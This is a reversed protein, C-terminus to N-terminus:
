RLVACNNGLAAWAWDARNRGEAYEDGKAVMLLTLPLLPLLVKLPGAGAGQATPPSFLYVSLAVALFAYPIVAASPSPCSSAVRVGEVGVPVGIEKSGGGIVGDGAHGVGAMGTLSMSSGGKIMSEAFSRLDSGADSPAVSSARHSRSSRSPERLRAKGNGTVPGSASSLVSGNPRAAAQDRTSDEYLRMEIQVTQRAARFLILFPYLCGLTTFAIAVRQLQTGDLDLAQSLSGYFTRVGAELSSSSSSASGRAVVDWRWAQSVLRDLVRKTAEFGLSQGGQGPFDIRVWPWFLVLFTLGAVVVLGVTLTAGRAVGGVSALGVWRGLLLAGVAPAFALCTQDLGVAWLYTAFGAVYNYSVRRSLTTIRQLAARGQGAAGPNPLSTLWFGMSLTAMGLYLPQLGGLGFSVLSFAPQSLISLIAIARTRRGRDALRRHLFFLVPGAYCILSALLSLLPLPALPGGGKALPRPPFRLGKEVEPYSSSLLRGAAYAWGAALPPRDLLRHDLDYAYWEDSPVNTTLSMWHRLTEWGATGASSRAILYQLFSNLALAILVISTAPVNEKMLGRVLSRLPTPSTLAAAAVPQTPSHQQASATDRPLAARISHRSISSPLGSGANSPARHRTTSASPPAHSPLASSTLWRQLNDQPTDDPGEYVEQLAGRSSASRVREERKYKSNHHNRRSTTGQSWGGVSGEGAASGAESGMRRVRGQPAFSSTYGQAPEAGAGVGASGQSRLWSELGGGSTPSLLNGEGERERQRQTRSSSRAKSSHHQQGGNM